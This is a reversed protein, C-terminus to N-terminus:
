IVTEEVSSYFTLLGVCLLVNFSQLFPFLVPLHGEVWGLTLDNSNALPPEM